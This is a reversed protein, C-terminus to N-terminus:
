QVTTQCWTRNDCWPVTGDSGQCTTSGNVAGVFYMLQGDRMKDIGTFNKDASNLAMDFRIAGGASPASGPWPISVEIAYGTTTSAQAYQATPLATQTGSGGSDKVTVAPGNAPIILHITNSDKSTMGTVNADSSFFLEISDGQYAKATAQSPDVMNATQVSGDQVDIYAHLGAADWGVRATATEFQSTPVNNSNIVKAANQANLVFYPLSCLDSGNGDVAQSGTFKPLGSKCPDATAGGSCSGAGADRPSVAGDPVGGDRIPTGGCTAVAGRATCPKSAGCSTFNNFADGDASCGAVSTGLTTVNCASQTTDCLDPACVSVLCYWSAPCDKNTVCQKCANVSTDCVMGLASCDANSKCTTRCVNFLCIKNSAGCNDHSVCDICRGNSTDCVGVSCDSNRQCAAVAVCKNGYCTHGSTCDSDAVCQVCAGRTTDCM